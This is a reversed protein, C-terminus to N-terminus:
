QMTKCKLVGSSFHAYESFSGILNGVLSSCDARTVNLFTGSTVYECAFPESPCISWNCDGSCCCCCGGGCCCCCCCYWPYLSVVSYISNEVKTDWQTDLTIHQLRYSFSKNSLKCRHSIYKANMKEKFITIKGRWQIKKKTFVVM